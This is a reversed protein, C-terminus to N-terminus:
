KIKKVIGKDADVEVQDGNKLMKTAIKTGTICPIKLERSVVAAHSLLGGEDTIIALAKEMAPVFKPNTKSTVLIEGKKMKFIDCHSELLRIKGKVVGSSANVGKILKVQKTQTKKQKVESKELKALEKGSYINLKGGSWILGWSKIREKLKIKLQPSIEGKKFFDDIEEFNMEVLMAYSIKMRKALELLFNKFYHNILCGAEDLYNLCYGWQKLTKIILRTKKSLNLEQIIKQTLEKNKEQAAVKKIEAKINKGLIEKIRKELQIATYPKYYYFYYNLFGFKEIHNKILKQIKKSKFSFKKKKILDALKLLRVKEERILTSRDLSTLVEIIENFREKNKLKKSIEITLIEPLYRDIVYYTYDPTLWQKKLDIFQDYIKKLEQLKVKSFDRNNYKKCFLIIEKIRKEFETGIKLLYGPNNNEKIKILKLYDDWEKKAFYSAGLIRRYYHIKFDAKLVKGLYGEKYAYPITCMLFLPLKGSKTVQIWNIKSM